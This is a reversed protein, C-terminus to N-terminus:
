RTKSKNQLFIQIKRFWTKLLFFIKTRIKILKVILGNRDADARKNIENILLNSYRAHGSQKYLFGLSIVASCQVMLPTQLANEEDQLPMLFPLHLSLLRTLTLNKTGSYTPNACFGIFISIAAPTINRIPGAMFSIYADM